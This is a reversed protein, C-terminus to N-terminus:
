LRKKLELKILSNKYNAEMFRMFEPLNKNVVNPKTAKVKKGKIKLSDLQAQGSLLDAKFQVDSIDKKLKKKFAQTEKQASM